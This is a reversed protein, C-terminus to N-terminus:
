ASWKSTLLLLLRTFIKQVAKLPINMYSIKGDYMNGKNFPILMIQKAVCFVLPFVKSTIVFKNPPVSPFSPRPYTNM